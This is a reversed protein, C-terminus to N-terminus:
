KDKKEMSNYKDSLKSASDIAKVATKNAEVVEQGKKLNKYQMFATAGTAVTGVAGIITAAKWGKLTKECRKTEADVAAIEEKLADRYAIMESLDEAVSVAPVLLMFLVTLYKM